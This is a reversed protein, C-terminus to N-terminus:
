FGSYDSVKSLASLLDNLGTVFARITAAEAPTINGGTEM